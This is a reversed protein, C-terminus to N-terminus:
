WAFELGASATVINFERQADLNQLNKTVRVEAVLAPGRNGLPVGAGAGLAGAFLSLDTSYSDSPDTDLPVVWYPSVTVHWLHWGASVLGYAFPRDRETSVRLTGTIFVVSEESELGQFGIDPGFAV